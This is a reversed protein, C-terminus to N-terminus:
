TIKKKKCYRLAADIDLLEKLAPNDDIFRLFSIFAPKHYLAFHVAPERGAALANFIEQLAPLREGIAADDMGSEFIGRFEELEHSIRISEDGTKQIAKQPIDVPLQEVEFETDDSQAAEDAIDKHDATHEAAPDRDKRGSGVITVAYSEIMKKIRPMREEHPAEFWGRKLGARKLWKELLIIKENDDFIESKEIYACSDEFSDYELLKSVGSKVKADIGSGVMFQSVDSASETEALLDMMELLNKRKVTDAIDRMTIRIKGPGKGAGASRRGSLTKDEFLIEDKVVFEEDEIISGTIIPVVPQEHGGGNILFGGDSNGGNHSSDDVQTMNEFESDDLLFGDGGTEAAPATSGAKEAEDIVDHVSGTIDEPASEYQETVANMQPGTEQKTDPVDDSIGALLADLENGSVGSDESPLAGHESGEGADGDHAKDAFDELLAELEGGSVGEDGSSDSVSDHGKDANKGHEEVSVDNLIAEPEGGSFGSEETMLSVIEAPPESDEYAISAEGPDNVDGEVDTISEPETEGTLERDDIAHGPKETDFEGGAMDELISRVREDLTDDSIWLSLVKRAVNDAKESNYVKKNKIYMGKVIGRVKEGDGPDVADLYDRKILRAYRTIADEQIRPKELPSVADVMGPEGKADASRGRIEGAPEEAMEAFSEGDEIGDPYEEDALLSAFKGLVPDWKMRMLLLRAADGGKRNRFANFIKKVQSQHKVDDDGLANKMMIMSTEVHKLSKFLAPDIGRLMLDYFKIVMYHGESETMKTIINKLALPTLKGGSALAINVDRAFILYRESFLSNIQLDAVVNLNLGAMLPHLARALLKEFEYYDSFSGDRLREAIRRAVGSGPLNLTLRSAGSVLGAVLEKRRGPSDIFQRVFQDEDM